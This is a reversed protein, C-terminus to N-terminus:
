QLQIGLFYKPVSGFSLNKEQCEKKYSKEAIRTLVLLEPGLRYCWTPM